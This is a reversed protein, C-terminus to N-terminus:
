GKFDYETKSKIEEVNKSSFKKIRSEFFWLVTFVFFALIAAMAAVVYLGFGSAMGIGVAVWLGAATTLGALYTDKFIILGAGIFGIGMIVQAAMRLPDFQGVGATLYELTVLQSIIVFLAGGMSVLAYTRVGASKQAITRELGLIGGLSLALILRILVELNSIILNEM